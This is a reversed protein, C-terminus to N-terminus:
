AWAPFSLRLDLQSWSEVFRDLADRSYIVDSMVRNAVYLYSGLGVSRQSFHGFEHALVAKFESLTLVNVLGLGILLDKRPPIILSILSTDYILAANVEPSVYVRRPAPAGTDEYVRQIFAFLKPHDKERVRVHSSRETRHRKFLGKILFLWLLIAAFAGGFKLVLVMFAGRGSVNPLPLILLGLVFLGALLIIFLYLLLFLFLGGIMGVVRLRYSNDLATIEEPVNDPTPPYLTDRPM